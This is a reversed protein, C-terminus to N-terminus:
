SRRRLPVWYYNLAKSISQELNSLDVALLRNQKVELIGVLATDTMKTFNYEGITYKALYGLM